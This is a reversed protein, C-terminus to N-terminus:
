NTPASAASPAEIQIDIEKKQNFTGGFFLLAAIVVLIILTAAAWVAGKSSETNEAM